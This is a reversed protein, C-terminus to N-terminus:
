TTVGAIRSGNQDAVINIRGPMASLIAREHAVVFASAYSSRLMAAIHVGLAQRNHQDLAGFPEDIFVASWRAGRQARLWQGAAIGLAVGALDEAAGSRNTPEINLKRQVNPGRAAGCAVCSRVRQSTPFATGCSGCVKALGKTAQEWSVKVQLPIGASSLLENARREVKAMVLEQIAQQAGTRGTLEVAEAALQKRRQANHIATCLDDFRTVAAKTWDLNETLQALQDRAEQAEAELDDIKQKVEEELSLAARFPRAAEAEDYLEEAKARLQVLRREVAEREGAAKRAADLKVKARQQAAIAEQAAKSAADLAAPSTAQESVWDAAPCEQCALPCMGDFQFDSRRLQDLKARAEDAKSAVSAYEEVALDKAKVLSEPHRELEKKTQIGVEVIQDYQDVKAVKSRLVALETAEKRASELQAKVQTLRGTAQLIRDELTAVLDIGGSHDQGFLEAKIDRVESQIDAREQELALLSSTASSLEKVAAANLRQIPELEAALWGEVISAKEASRATVLAGIRKQEFFCTAFWDDQTFGIHKEIAEQARGQTIPQAGKARFLVQTSKGRRKSRSITTGDNLCLTVSCEDQGTTIVGEDTTKTHWGFLAYAFATLVTSKGLWNSRAPNDVAQALVAYVTPGLEMTWAGRFCYFNEIDLRTPYLDNM